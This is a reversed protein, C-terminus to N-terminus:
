TSRTMKPRTRSLGSQIHELFTVLSASTSKKCESREPWRWRTFEAKAEDFQQDFLSNSFHQQEFEAVPQDSKKPPAQQKPDSRSGL